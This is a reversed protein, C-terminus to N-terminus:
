FAISAFMAFGNSLFNFYYLFINFILNTSAPQISFGMFDTTSVKGMSLITKGATVSHGRSELGSRQPVAM